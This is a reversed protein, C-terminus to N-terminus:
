LCQLGARHDSNLDCHSFNNHCGQGLGFRHAMSAAMSLESHDREVVLATRGADVPKSM